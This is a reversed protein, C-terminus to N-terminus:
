LSIGRRYGMDPKPQEEYFAREIEDQEVVHQQTRILAAARVTHHLFNTEVPVKDIQNPYKNEGEEVENLERDHSCM